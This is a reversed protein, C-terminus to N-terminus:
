ALTEYLRVVVVVAVACALALVAHRTRTWVPGASRDPTPVQSLLLPLMAVSVLLYGLHTGLEAPRHGRILVVVDLAANTVLLVEAVAAGAAAARSCRVGCAALVSIVAVLGLYSVALVSVVPMLRRGRRHPRCSPGTTSTTQGRQAEVALDVGRHGGAAATGARPGALDVAVLTRGRVRCPDPLELREVTPRRRASRARRLVGRDRRNAPGRRHRLRRRLRVPRVSRLRRRVLRCLGLHGRGCQAPGAVLTPTSMGAHRQGAAVAQDPTLDPPPKDTASLKSEFESEIEQGPLAAYWAKSVFGFEYGAGTIAWMLLLPVAIMGAVEHLDYDRAYRGKKLRVRVGRVWHRVGPWWLWIGSLGLFLLMIATVGLVLGGLHDEGRRLRGLGFGPDRRGALGSLGSSGRLDPRLLHINYMLGLTWGIAGVDAAPDFDGMVQRTHPDVTIKRTPEYSEAAYTGHADYVVNPVFEPDYRHVVAITETLAM